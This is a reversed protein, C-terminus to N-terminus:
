QVFTQACVDVTLFVFRTKSLLNWIYGLGNDCKESEFNNRTLAVSKKKTATTFQSFVFRDDREQTVRLKYKMFQM